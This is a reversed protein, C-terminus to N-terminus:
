EELLDDLASKLQEFATLELLLIIDGEIQKQSVEFHTEGLLVIQDTNHEPLINTYYDSDYTPISYQFEDKLLNAITGMVGNLLLNAIENLTSASIEDVYDSENDEGTLLTVLKVASDTPFVVEAIGSFIGQFGLKIGFLNIKQKEAFYNSLTSFKDVWINPVNLKIHSNVLESLLSASKGIGMNILEKFIDVHKDSLLM